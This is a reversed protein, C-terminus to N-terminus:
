IRKGNRKEEIRAEIKLMDAKSVHGEYVNIDLAQIHLRITRIHYGHINAIDMVRVMNAKEEDTMNHRKKSHQWQSKSTWHKQNTIGHTQSLYSCPLFNSSTM